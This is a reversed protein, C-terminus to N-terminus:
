KKALMFWHSAPQITDLRGTNDMSSVSYAVHGALMVSETIIGDDDLTVDVECYGAPVDGFQIVPYKVDDLTYQWEGGLFM